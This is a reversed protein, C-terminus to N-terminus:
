KASAPARVAAEGFSFGYKAVHKMKSENSKFMVVDNEEELEEEAPEREREEKKTVSEGQGRVRAQLERQSQFNAFREQTKDFKNQTVFSLIAGQLPGTAFRIKYSNEGNNTLIGTIMEGAVDAEFQGGDKIEAFSFNLNVEKQSGTNLSANFDQISGDFVSLNGTVQTINLVNRSQLPNLASELFLDMDNMRIGKKSKKKSANATPQVLELGKNAFKVPALAVFRKAELIEYGGGVVKFIAITNQKTLLSIKFTQSRDDDLIVTSTSFLKMDVVITSKKDEENKFSDYIANGKNDLVRTIEWKGNIKKKNEETVGLYNVAPLNFDHVRSAVIRKTQDPTFSVIELKDEFMFSNSKLQLDAYTGALVAGAVATSLLYTRFTGITKKM